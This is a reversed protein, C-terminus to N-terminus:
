PNEHLQGPTAGEEDRIDVDAGAAILKKVIDFRGKRVAIHLPAEHDENMVDLDAQREVLSSVLDFNGVDVALHLPTNQRQDELNVNAQKSLLLKAIAISSESYNQQIAVHLATQKKNNQIEMDAGHNLLRVASDLKGELAALHLPTEGFEVDQANVNAGYRIYLELLISLGAGAAQHLLTGLGPILAADVDAGYKLLLEIISIDANQNIVYHPDTGEDAVSTLYWFAFHLPTNGDLAKANVDAGQEILMEMMDRHGKRAAQHLPTYGKVPDIDARRNIDAGLNILRKALDIDGSSAIQFLLSDIVDSTTQIEKRSLSLVNALYLVTFDLDIRLAESLNELYQANQGKGAYASAQVIYAYTYNPHIQIARKTDQLALDLNGKIRYADGRLAYAGAFNPNLQILKTYAQIVRDFDGQESYAMGRELYTVADILLNDPIHGLMGRVLKEAAAIDGNTQAESNEVSSHQDQALIDITLFSILILVAIIKSTLITWKSESSQDLQISKM